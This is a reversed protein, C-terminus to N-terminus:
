TCSRPAGARRLPARGAGSEGDAHRALDHVEIQVLGVKPLPAVRVLAAQRGSERVIGYIKDVTFQGAPVLVATLDREENNEPDAM